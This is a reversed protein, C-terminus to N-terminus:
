NLKLLDLMGNGTKFGTFGGAWLVNGDIKMSRMSRGLNTTNGFKIGSSGFSTDLSGTSTLAFALYDYDTVTADSTVMGAGVIYLRGNQIGIDNFFSGFTLTASLDVIGATGFTTDLVGALTLKGVYGHYLTGNYQTASVYIGSSDVVLGRGYNVTGLNFVYIGSTGFSADLVGSSNMKAVNIKYTNSTPGAGYLCYINGSGDLRLTGMSTVGVTNVIVAKGSTGFSTDYTGDSNLKIVFYKLTGADNSYGLALIKGDSLIKGGVLAGNDTKIPDVFVGATGFSTDLTGDSNYRTILARGSAVTGSTRSLGFGYIKGASYEIGYYMDRWGSVDLSVKGTSNFTTDLTGDTNLRVILADYTSGAPTWGALLVKHDDQIAVAEGTDRYTGNDTRIDVSLHSDAAGFGPVATGSLYSILTAGATASPGTSDTGVKKIGSQLCGTSLFLVSLLLSLSCFRFRNMVGNMDILLIDRKFDL